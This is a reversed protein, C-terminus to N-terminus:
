SVFSDLSPFEPKLGNKEQSKQTIYGFSIGVPSCCQFSGASIM